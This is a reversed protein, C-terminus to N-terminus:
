IKVVFISALNERLGRVGNLLSVDSDVPVLHALKFLLITKFVM